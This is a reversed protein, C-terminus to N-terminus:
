STIHYAGFALVIIHPEIKEGSGAARKTGHCNPFHEPSVLMATVAYCTGGLGCELAVWNSAEADYRYIIATDGVLIFTSKYPVSVVISLVEPLPTGPLIIYNLNCFRIVLVVNFFKVESL